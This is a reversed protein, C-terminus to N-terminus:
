WMGQLSVGGRGAGVSPAVTVSGAKPATLVLVVGTAVLAGGAALGVTAVTAQGYATQADHPASGSCMTPDGGTCTSRAGDFTSKSVFAMVGGLALGAAGVVGVAFGLTRQTSGTSPSAQARPAETSTDPPAVPLAAGLVVSVHREKEGERLLVTKEEKGASTEFTFRHEGPNVAIASGDLKPALLQGDLWVRADGVDNGAKDRAEFVVSPLAADVEELRQACDRRVPAPCSAAVCVALKVKAERLKGSLRLDQASSNADVCQAKTPEDATAFSDALLVAAFLLAADVHRRM